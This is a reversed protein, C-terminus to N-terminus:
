HVPRGHGQLAPVNDASAHPDLRSVVDKVGRVSRITALLQVVEHALIPGDVEIVGHHARIVLAGPHTVPRGIQARVREELIDDPVDHEHRRAKAEYLAGRARWKLDRMRHRTWEGLHRARSIAKDRLKARRAAGHGPEALWLGAAGVGVGIGLWWLPGVGRNKSQRKLM